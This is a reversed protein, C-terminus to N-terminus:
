RRPRNHGPRHSWRRPRAAAPDLGMPAFMLDFHTGSGDMGGHHGPTDVVTRCTLQVQCCRRQPALPDLRTPPRQRPDILHTIPRRVFLHAKALDLVDKPRCPGPQAAHTLRLLLYAIFAVAIQSRIANESCGMFRTINLNQKIWKFFLEIQWREKYLVAIEEAPSVLDNTFLRLIKGTDIRITIERGPQHFPNRRSAALREPLHGVQDSLICGDAVVDRPKADRLM